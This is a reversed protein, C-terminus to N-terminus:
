SKEEKAPSGNHLPQPQAKVTSDIQCRLQNWPMEHLSLNKKKKAKKEWSTNMLASLARM